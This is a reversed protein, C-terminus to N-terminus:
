YSSYRSLMFGQITVLAIAILVAALALLSYTVGFTEEVKAPGPEVLGPPVAATEPMRAITLPKTGGASEPRKIRITKRRTPPQETMAEPPLDIRATESKRSAVVDPASPAALPEEAEKSPTATTPRKIRITKPMGRTDTTSVATKKEALAESLDISTTRRKAEQTAIRIASLDVRTTETKLKQEDIQVRVTAAKKAQDRMGEEPPGLRQEDIQVRVTASKRAQEQMAEEPSLERPLNIRTTSKKIDQPPQPTGPIKVQSLDIRTTESKASKPAMVIKPPTAQTEPHAASGNSGSLKIKPPQQGEALKGNEEAM